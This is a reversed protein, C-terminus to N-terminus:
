TSGQVSPSAADRSGPPDARDLTVTVVSGDSDCSAFSLEGGSAEVIWRVLWLGLGSGHDMQTERDRELAAREDEPIGPGDDAVSVGVTGEGREVRFEVNPSEAPNHEVANEGLNEVAVELLTRDVAIAWARDPADVRITAGPHAEGLTAAVDSVVSALDLPGTEPRGPGITKEVHVAKRGMDTLREAAEDIRQVRERAEGDLTAELMEVEGIVVALENRLNHRLLRNLVSLRQDHERLVQLQTVDRLHVFRGVVDGRFDTLTTQSVEYTRTGDGVDLELVGAAVGDASGIATRGIAAGVAEEGLARRAAPNCYVIRGDVDAVVIGDDMARVLTERATPTLDLMRFRFLALAFFVGTVVFAFPTLDLHTIPNASPFVNFAANAVFPVLAGALLVLSQRRYIRGARPVVSAVLVLGVISLLYSYWLNAWYAPGFTLEPVVLQGTAHTTAARWILGHVGNTWVLGLTLAPEIVLVGITWSDVWEEYGAYEIALLFWATPVLVSGVFAIQDWRLMPEITSFGLEIGYGFSWICLGVMMAFFPMAARQDRKRWAYAALIAAVVGALFTPVLYVSFQWAMETSRATRNSGVQLFSGLSNDSKLSDAAAGIGKGGFRYVAPAARNGWTM